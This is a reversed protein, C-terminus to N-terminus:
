RRRGSRGVPRDAPPLMVARDFQGTAWFRKRREPDDLGFRGYAWLAVGLGVIEMVASLWGRTLEPTRGGVLSIGTFPWWFGRADTFAGDLVLHFYLGIPIGLLQRRLLRRRPTALMVVTLVLTPTVLAHLPGWGFPVELVPLVAGLAILRYDLAPSQFVFWTVVVALSAFWLLM